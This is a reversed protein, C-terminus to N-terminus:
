KTKNWSMITTETKIKKKNSSSDIYMLCYTAM